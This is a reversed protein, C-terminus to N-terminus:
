QIPVDSLVVTAEDKPDLPLVGTMEFSFWKPVPHIPRFAYLWHSTTWLHRRQEVATETRRQKMREAIRSSVVRLVKELRTDDLSVQM